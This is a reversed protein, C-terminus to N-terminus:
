KSAYSVARTERIVCVKIQGPFTLTEEIKRAVDKCLLVAEDDTVKESQVIVRLERGAQIAFSGGVGPFGNAIRELDELRKIYSELMERRAGPRAGSLGDAAQVLFALVSGPPIDEHHASVAHVIKPAEGYKKALKAGILAHPGEVEHDVSKGIDHLLGARRAQKVNLNLESAMIGCLFGVEISHQLMNQAYSTRYKLRGLFKVLEPNIGHVGLDFTAQEGAERITNDVEQEVKKVIEEIRAPHIRGDAILRLLSLRAVERRVPNFGSLIVAEPTDDVILDIGTASELARINRGERGIIRGKMEESPLEVVSVTREAVYDGAYRQIATAMIMKAKKEANEKTDTEIRKVLKAGEHRAEDEMSKLLFEKAQETTMGSIRELEREQEEVLAQAREESKEIGQERKVLNKERNSLEQDRREVQDLKRDLNEERQILRAELKKLESKAEKTEADFDAKMKFLKDKAEVAAEKLITEAQHRAEEVAREAEENALRIRGALLKDRLLIAAAMGALLALIAILITEM